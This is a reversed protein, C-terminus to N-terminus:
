KIGRIYVTGPPDKPNPVFEGKRRGAPLTWINIVNETSEKIVDIEKISNTAVLLTEDDTFFGDIAYKVNGNINLWNKIEAFTKTKVDQSTYIMIVGYKSINKLNAPIPIPKKLVDIKSIQNPPISDLNGAIITSNIIFTPWFEKTQPLHRYATDQGFSVLCCGFCLFFVLIIKKM